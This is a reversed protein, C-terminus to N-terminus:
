QGARQGTDVELGRKLQRGDAATVTSLDPGGCFSTVDMLILSDAWYALRNPCTVASVACTSGITSRVSNLLLWENLVALESQVPSREQQHRAFGPLLLLVGQSARASRPALLAPDTQLGCAPPTRRVSIGSKVPWGVNTRQAAHGIPVPAATEGKCVFVETGRRAWAVDTRACQQGAGSQANSQAAPPPASGVGARQEQQADFRSFSRLLASTTGGRAATGGASYSPAQRTSRLRM